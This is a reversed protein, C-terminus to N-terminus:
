KGDKEAHFTGDAHYHGGKQASGSSALMLQYAGAVVVEDGERVGTSLVIWRGDDAGTDADIRIVQDPDAPDRRFVVSQLGDRLVSSRPVAPEERGDGFAFELAAVVGPRAWIPPAVTPTALLGITREDANGALDLTWDAPIGTRDLAHIAGGGAPAVIRARGGAALRALDAQPAASRFILRSPDIAVVVQEGVAVWAGDAPFVREITTQTEARVVVADPVVARSDAFLPGFGRATTALEERLLGLRLDLGDRTATLERERASMDADKEVTESLAAEASALATKAATLEENRGGGAQVVAELESTRQKWLEVSKMLAAEHRQHAARFAPMGDLKAAAEGHSAALEAILRSLDRLRPSDIRFLEDGANVIAMPKVALRLRGEVPARYERRADPAADFRGTYRVTAAVARVEVKAFTIGLNTRVAAPIPIRNTPAQGGDHADGAAPNPAVDRKSCGLLVAFGVLASGLLIHHRNM